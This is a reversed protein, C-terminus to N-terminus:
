RRAPYPRLRERGRPVRTRVVIWASSGGVVFLQVAFLVNLTAYYRYTMEHHTVLALIHVVGVIAYILFVVLAVMSRNRYGLMAVLIAAVRM